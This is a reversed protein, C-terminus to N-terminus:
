RNVEIVNHCSRCYFRGEDSIGWDVAACQACPERYEAQALVRCLPLTNDSMDPSKSMLFLSCCCYDALRFILHFM